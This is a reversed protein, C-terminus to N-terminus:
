KEEYGPRFYWMRTESGPAFTTSAALTHHFIVKESSYRVCNKSVVQPLSLKPCAKKNSRAYFHVKRVSHSFLVNRYKHTFTIKDENLRKRGLTTLTFLDCSTLIKKGSAYRVTNKSVVHVLSSKACAKKNTRTRFRAKRM